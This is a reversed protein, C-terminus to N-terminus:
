SSKAFIETLFLDAIQMFIEPDSWMYPREIYPHKQTSALYLSCDPIIASIRAYEQAIHPLGQDQQYGTLLVPCKIANLFSNPVAYGGRDALQRLFRTDADVVQRWDDGHQAQLKQANRVYIHERLDLWRHLTRADWDALFSDAILGKVTLGHQPTHKGAFHLAVLAGGGVGLTYCTKLQLEQLLHCALDARFGWYDVECEDLYLLDHTSKGTGSYDFALVQFREAFHNIERAYAQSSLLNDPFLILTEGEGKIEYYTTLDGIQVTPM